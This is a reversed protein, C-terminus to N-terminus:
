PATIYCCMLLWAIDSNISKDPNGNEDMFLYGTSDPDWWGSDEGEQTVIYKLDETLPYVGADEDMCAIYELLCQSYNEKKVFVGNEDFFYRNVGTSELIKKFCSIYRGDEGLRMLVVPGDASDLHYFGDNENLVLTYGDAALDFEHLQAGAPLSYASPQAKARYDTWPEDEITKEPDGLRSVSLVAGTGDTQADLGIVVTVAGTESVMGASISLRFTNDTVEAATDKQVFHPAGYYGIVASGDPVSFEYLGTQAPTFLFYNRGAKLEAYTCGEQVGYASCEGEPAFLPQGEEPRAYSLVVALETKKASLTMDQTNVHFRASSDTFMLEVTYDGRPLTKAAVGSENVVQMAVQTGEQLFKVVVGSTYPKGLADAVSVRYEAEGSQCGCLALGLLLCVALLLAGTKVIKKM